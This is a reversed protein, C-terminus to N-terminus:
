HPMGAAVTPVNIAVETVQFRDVGYIRIKHSTPIFSLLLHIGTKNLSSM